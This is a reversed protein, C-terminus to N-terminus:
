PRRAPKAITMPAGLSTVSRGSGQAAEAPVGARAADADLLSAVIRQAAKGDWLPPRPTSRIPEALVRFAESVIRDPTTGVIRNTGHTV